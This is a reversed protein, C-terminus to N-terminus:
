PKMRDLALIMFMNVTFELVAMLVVRMVLMLMLLGRRLWVAMRMAVPWHALPARVIWVTM